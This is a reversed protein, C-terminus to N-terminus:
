LVVRGELVRGAGDGCGGGRWCVVQGMAVGGVGRGGCLGVVM